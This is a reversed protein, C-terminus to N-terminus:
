QYPALEESYFLQAIFVRIVNRSRKGMSLTTCYVHYPFIERYLCNYVVCTLSISSDSEGHLCNPLSCILSM